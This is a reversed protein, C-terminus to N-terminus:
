SIPAGSQCQMGRFHTWRPLLHELGGKRLVGEMSPITLKDRPAGSWCGRREEAPLLAWENEHSGLM